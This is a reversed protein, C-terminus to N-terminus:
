CGLGADLAAQLLNAPLGRCVTSRGSRSGWFLPLRGPLKGSAMWRWNWLTGWEGIVEIILSWHSNDDSKENKRRLPITSNEDQGKFFSSPSGSFRCLCHGSRLAMIKRSLRHSVAMLRSLVTTRGNVRRKARVSNARVDNEMEVPLDRRNSLRVNVIQRFATSLYHIPEAESSKSRKMNVQQMEMQFSKSRNSVM